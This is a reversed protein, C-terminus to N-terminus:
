WLGAFRLLRLAAVALSVVLLVLGLAIVGAYIAERRSLARAQDREQQLYEPLEDYPVPPKM